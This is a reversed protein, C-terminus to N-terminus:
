LPRHTLGWGAAWGAVRRTDIPTRLLQAGELLVEPDILRAHLLADTFEYDKMRGAVLKSVVLDHPGLLAWFAV